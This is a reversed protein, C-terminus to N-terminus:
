VKRSPRYFHILLAPLLLLNAALALLMALAALGGFYATPVFRSLLLVSFGAIVTFSTFYLAQGTTRHSTLVAQEVSCRSRLQQRFRHLYHIADDVGIGIVIAAITITMIDLPISLFHMFALVTTAALVNPLLGIVALRWSRLLLTFMLLTAVLVFGLTSFQSNFFLQLMNNFLVGIGTVRVDQPQFGLENVAFNEIGTILDSLEYEGGTERLRASIRLQGAAPSALPDIFSKRVDPPIAGLVGTLGVYSLPTGDNFSRAVQEFNSVSLTKGIADQSEMYTQLQEVLRLKEPTFWFREPYSDLVDGDSFLDGFPDTFSADGEEQKFAEFQLIVDIPVTGGLERDIVELGRRIETNGRFYSLLKNGLSLDSAGYAAVVALLCGLGVVAMSHKTAIQGLAETLWPTNAHKGAMEPAPLLVLISAFFSYTVLLSVVIGLCMMWGFTRIPVIDSALLSGFAVMTTLATYICPALKDGMTQFALDCSAINGEKGSIERYASILHVTFSVTTIILLAVFNSSVATVPQGLAAVAGMTLWVTVLSTGLPILVWRLQRFFLFLAIAILALVAGGFVLMDNRIFTVMDAAVLPVGGLYIEADNSYRQRIERIEAIVAATSQRAREKAVILEDRAEELPRGQTWPDNSLAIVRMEADHLTQSQDLTLVLASVQGDTNILLESFVPSKLLEERALSFDVDPSRLTRYGDALQALPVPPSKLLPADLLSQVNAVGAVDSLATVLGDLKEVGQRSFLQSARPRYTVVLAPTQSFRESVEEFFEFEPDGRAILSDSSADFRFHEMQMGALLCLGTVLTVILIPQEICRRYRVAFLYRLNISSLATNM